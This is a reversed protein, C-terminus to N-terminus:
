KRNRKTTASKSINEEEIQTEEKNKRNEQLSKIIDIKEINLDNLKINRDAIIISDSELKCYKVNFSNKIFEEFTKDNIAEERAKNIVESVKTYNVEIFTENTIAELERAIINLNTSGTAQQLYSINNFTMDSKFDYAVNSELISYKATSTKIYDYNGESYSESDEYHNILQKIDLGMIKEANCYTLNNSNPNQVERYKAINSRVESIRKLEEEKAEKEKIVNEKAKNQINEINMVRDSKVVIPVADAPSTYYFRAKDNLAQKDTYNDLKLAKSALAQFERFTDKDLNELNQKTPILIRFRDAIGKSKGSETFKEKQNSKSPIIMASINADRLLAEAEAITLQLKGLDNDIDYILLNNYSNVNKMNRYNNEFKAFSYPYTKVIKSLENYNNVQVVEWKNLANVNTDKCISIELGMEIEEEKTKTIEIKLPQERYLERLIAISESTQLNVENQLFDIVNKPKQKNNLNNIKNDIIEYDSSNVKYHTIAYDLVSQADLQEKLMTLSVDNDIKITKAKDIEVKKLQQIESKPRKGVESLVAEAETFLLTNKEEKKIKEAIQKEVEKKFEDSGDIEIDSLEWGKAIAINLMLNVREKINNSDSKNSVITDGIDEININKDKNIFKTNNEKNKPITVSYGKLSLESNLLHKYHKYFMRQQYSQNSISDKSKITTIPRERYIDRIAEKSSVSRRKDIQEIRKEYYSTLIKELEKIGKDRSPIFEKNNLVVLHKLEKSNLNIDGLGNKNKGKKILKVYKYDKSGAIKYDIDKKFGYKNNLTHILEDSNNLHKLRETWEKKLLGNESIYQREERTHEESRPHSLGYKKNIYAQLTDDIFSNNYFTTQLKTDNLPNYLAIAIHEHELREKNHEYKIIPQHTEAYAIVENDIDYGCTHHKIYTMVIDKKMAMKEDDTMSDMMQMDKKSYSITIHLYNDKYNKEKNLYQETQRFTELNGYLPIVNDKQERTYESDKRHGKELYDSLGSKARSIRALM